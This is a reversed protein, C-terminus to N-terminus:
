PGAVNRANSARARRDRQIHPRPEVVPVYVTGALGLAPGPEEWEVAVEEWV